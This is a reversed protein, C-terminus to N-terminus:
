GALLRRRVDESLRVPRRAETDFWTWRHTFRAIKRRDRGSLVECEQEFGRESADVTNVRIVAGEQWGLPSFYAAVTSRQVAYVHEPKQETTIGCHEEFRAYAMETLALLIGAHVFGTTAFCDSHRTEFRTEFSM